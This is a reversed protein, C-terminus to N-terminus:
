HKEGTPPRSTRCSRDPPRSSCNPVRNPASGRRSAAQSALEVVMPMGGLEKVIRERVAIPLTDYAPRVATAAYPVPTGFRSM